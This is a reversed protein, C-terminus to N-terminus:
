KQALVKLSLIKGESEPVHMVNTLQIKTTKGGCEIEVDINGEGAGKVLNNGFMKINRDSDYKWYSVFDKCDPSIHITTASNAFWIDPSNKSGYTWVIPTDMVSNVTNNNYKKPYQGEQGGGKSLCKAKVHRM